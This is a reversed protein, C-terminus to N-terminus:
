LGNDLVSFDRARLWKTRVDTHALEDHSTKAHEQLPTSGVMMVIASVLNQLHHLLLKVVTAAWKEDEM